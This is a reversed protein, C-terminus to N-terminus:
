EIVMTVITDWGSEAAIDMAVLLEDYGAMRHIRADEEIRSDWCHCLMYRETM